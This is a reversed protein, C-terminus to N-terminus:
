LSSRTRFCEALGWIRVVTLLSSSVAAAIDFFVALSGELAPPAPAVSTAARMSKRMWAQSTAQSWKDKALHDCHSECTVWFRLVDFDCKLNLIPHNKAIRPLTCCMAPKCCLCCLTWRKWHLSWWSGTAVVPATTEQAKTLTVTWHWLWHRQFSQPRDAVEISAWAFSM